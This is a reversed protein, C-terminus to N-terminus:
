TLASRTTKGSGSAGLLVVFEGPWVQLDLDALADAAAPGEGLRKGVGHLLVAAFGSRAAADAAAALDVSRYRHHQVRM